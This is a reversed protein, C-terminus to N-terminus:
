SKQSRPSLIRSQIEFHRWIQADLAYYPRLYTRQLSQLKNRTSTAGLLLCYFLVPLLYESRRRGTSAVISLRSIKRFPRKERFDRYSKVPIDSKSESIVPVSPIKRERLDCLPAGRPGWFRMGASSRAASCKRLLNHFSTSRFFILFLLM